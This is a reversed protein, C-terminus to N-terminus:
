SCTKLPVPTVPLYNTVLCEDYAKQEIEQGEVAKWGKWVM